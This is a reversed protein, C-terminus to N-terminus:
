ESEKKDEPKTYLGQALEQYMSTGTTDFVQCFRRALITSNYCDSLRKHYQALASKITPYKEVVADGKENAGEVNITLLFYTDM